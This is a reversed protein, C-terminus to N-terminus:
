HKKQSEFNNGDLEDNQIQPVIVGGDGIEPEPELIPYEAVSRTISEIMGMAMREGFDKNWDFIGVNGVETVCLNLKTLM